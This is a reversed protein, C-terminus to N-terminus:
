EAREPRQGADAAHRLREWLRDVPEGAAGVHRTMASARELHHDARRQLEAIQRYADRVAELHEIADM